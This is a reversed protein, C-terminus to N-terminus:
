PAPVPPADPPVPMVSAQVVGDAKVALKGDIFEIEIEKANAPLKAQEQGDLLVRDKAVVIKHEGATVIAQEGETSISAPGDIVATVHRGGVDTGLTSRTTSQRNCGIALVIVVGFWHVIDRVPLVHM